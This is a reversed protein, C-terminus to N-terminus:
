FSKESHSVLQHLLERHWRAVATDYIGFTSCFEWYAWSFGHQRAHRTIVGTWHARDAMRAKSYSGFEGIYVPRRNERSWRAIAQFDNAISNVELENAPFRRGTPPASQELWEAGQHTFEFPEYYHCTAILFRDNAPLRLAPLERHSNWEGPGIIVCRKPHRKRITRLIRPFIQNWRESTLEAHPENLLEFYLHTSYGFFERSICTWINRLTTEHALPDAHIEEFHHVNLVVRLDNSVCRDVVTRVRKMFASEISSGDPNDLHASWRVPIRVHDFGAKRILVPFSSDFRVGWAGEHPADLMNGLNIGRNLQNAADFADEAEAALLSSMLLGDVAPTTMAIVTIFLIRAHM